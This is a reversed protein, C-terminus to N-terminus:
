GCRMERVNSGYIFGGTQHYMDDVMRGTVEAAEHYGRAIGLVLLNEGQRERRTLLSVPCIDFIHKGNEPLTIVYTDPLLSGQRLGKLIRARARDANQGMYLHDWLRM